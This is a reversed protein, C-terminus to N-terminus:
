VPKYKITFDCNDIDVWDSHENKGWTFCNYTVQVKPKKKWYPSGGISYRKLEGDRFKIRKRITIIGSKFGTLRGEKYSDDKRVPKILKVIIELDDINLLTLLENFNM